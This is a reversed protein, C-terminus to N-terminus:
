AGDGGSAVPLAAVLEALRARYQTVHAFLQRAPTGPNVAEVTSVLLERAATVAVELRESTRPGPGDEAAQGFAQGPGATAAADKPVM